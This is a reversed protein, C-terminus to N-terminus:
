RGEGGDEEGGEAGWGADESWEQDPQWLAGAGDVARAQSQPAVFSKTSFIDWAPSCFSKLLDLLQCAYMENIVNVIIIYLSNIHNFQLM